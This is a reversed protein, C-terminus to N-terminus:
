RCYEVLSRMVECSGDVGGGVVHVNILRSFCGVSLVLTVMVMAVDMCVLVGTEIAMCHRPRNIRLHMMPHAMLM